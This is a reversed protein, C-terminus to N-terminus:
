VLDSINISNIADQDVIKSDIKKYRNKYKEFIIKPIKFRMKTGEQAYTTYNIRSGGSGLDGSILSIGPPVWAGSDRGSAKAVVLGFYTLPGRGAYTYEKFTIEVLVEEKLSSQLELAKNEMENHIEISNGVRTGLKAYADNIFTNYTLNISLGM